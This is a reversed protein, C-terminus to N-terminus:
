RAALADFDVRQVVSNIVAQLRQPPYFHQLQNHTVIKQLKAAVVQALGAQGAGCPALLLTPPRVHVTEPYAPRPPTSTNAVPKCCIHNIAHKQVPPHGDGQNRHLLQM